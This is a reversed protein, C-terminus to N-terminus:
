RDNRFVKPLYRRPFWMALACMLVWLIALEDLMQGLFSLTAHFYVSGIGLILSLWYFFTVMSSYVWLNLVPWGNLWGSDCDGSWVRVSLLLQLFFCVGGLCASKFGLFLIELLAGLDACCFEFLAVTLCETRRRPPKLSSATLLLWCERVTLFEWDAQPLFHFNYLCKGSCHFILCLSNEKNQDMLSFDWWLEIKKHTLNEESTRLFHRQCLVLLTVSTLWPTIM